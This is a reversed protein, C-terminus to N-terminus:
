WSSFFSLSSRALLSSCFLSLLIAADMALSISYKQDLMSCTFYESVLVQAIQPPKKM